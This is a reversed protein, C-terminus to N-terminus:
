DPAIAIKRMLRFVQSDWPNRIYDLPRNTHTVFRFVLRSGAIADHPVGSAFEASLPQATRA